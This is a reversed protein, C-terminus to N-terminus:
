QEASISLYCDGISAPDAACLQGGTVAAIRELVETDAGGGFAIPFIKFGDAEASTPLCNTFMQNESRNSSTDEGDTLLVIGYLRSDGDTGAAAKREAARNTAECVADYLATGSGPTLQLVREQLAEREQSAPQLESLAVVTQSFIVMAVEDNRQLRGLFDATAQTAARLPQGAMSLSVDLVLIVTAPRKTLTFLDIVAASVAADPSPLAPATAPSVRPDTGHELDLPARLAISADVPRLFNDIAAEQQERQLLYDGFRAAAEAEEPSVWEANDLVCYPHDAWITGGAPVVFALPFQLEAAREINFKLVNSEPVAAAHLYAPGERAMLELLPRSNRGYKATAQELLRMAEEAEYVRAAALPEQTGLAGYVFSTLTLLGTNSYAPHTHGFRFRGWEPRGYDAWGDPDAAREVIMEWTIPEDPWGLAEAMPRWMAFGVPQLVTGRCPQSNIPRNHQRQWAANLQEVWSADGPSWVVPQTSGDLIAEMSPGSTVHTAHVRIPQGGATRHGAENFRAIAEDLWADKTNSSSISVVVADRPVETGPPFPSPGAKRSEVVLMVGTVILFVPMVILLFMKRTRDM